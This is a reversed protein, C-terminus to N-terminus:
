LGLSVTRSAKGRGKSPTAKLELEALEGAAREAAAVGRVLEDLGADLSSVSGLAVIRDRLKQLEGAVRELEAEAAEVSARAMEAEELRAGSASARLAELDTGQVIVRTHSTRAASHLWGGLIRDVKALERDIGTGELAPNAEALQRIDSRVTDLELYRRRWRESLTRLLVQEDADVTTRRAARQRSREFRPGIVAWVLEAGAAVALPRWDGAWAASLAASALLLLNLPHSFIPAPTM